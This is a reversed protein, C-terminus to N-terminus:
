KRGGRIGKIAKSYDEAKFIANGAVFVNAGAERCIEATDNKIGGDVEIFLKPNNKKAWEKVFKIKPVQESMFAQGGWGPNVTMILVLDVLELYKEIHDIPTQPRLTIGPSVKAKKIRSLTEAVVDSAEVHITLSNAGAEIYRDVTLEPREVMLHVDMPVKTKKKLSAVVPPGITLNDVFHGDMIDVHVWDAGAKEVAKIEEGLKSFDASLISPAILNTAL